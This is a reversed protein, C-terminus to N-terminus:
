IIIGGGQDRSFWLSFVKQKIVGQEFISDLFTRQRYYSQNSFSLGILGDGDWSKEGDSKQIQVIPQRTASFSSVIVTDYSFFGEDTGDPFERSYPYKVSKNTDSDYIKSFTSSKSSNYMNNVSSVCSKCDTSAVFIDGCQLTFLLSFNQPPTGISVNGVYQDTQFTLPGKRSALEFNPLKKGVAKTKKLSIRPFSKSSGLFSVLLILIVVLIKQM